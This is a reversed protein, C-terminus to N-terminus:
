KIESSFPVGTEFELKLITPLSSTTESVALKSKSLKVECLICMVAISPSPFLTVSGNAISILSTSSNSTEAIVSVSAVALETESFAETPVETPMVVKADSASPVFLPTVYLRESSAPPRKAISGLVPSTM